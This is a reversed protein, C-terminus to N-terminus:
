YFIFVRIYAAGATLSNLTSIRYILWVSPDFHIDDLHVIGLYISTKIPRFPRFHPKLHWKVFKIMECFVAKIYGTSLLSLVTYQYRTDVWFGPIGPEHGAAASIQKKKTYVYITVLSNLNMPYHCSSLSIYGILEADLFYFYFSCIVHSRDIFYIKISAWHQAVVRSAPGVIFWCHAVAGNQALDGTQCCVHFM